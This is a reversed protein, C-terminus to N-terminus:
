RQDDHDAQDDRQVAVPRGDLPRRAEHLDALPRAQAEHLVVHLWRTLAQEVVHLPRLGAGEAVRLPHRAARRGAVEIAVAVHVQHDRPEVVM